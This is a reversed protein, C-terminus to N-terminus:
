SISWYAVLVKLTLLLIEEVDECMMGTKGLTESALSSAASGEGFTDDTKSEVFNNDGLVDFVDLTCTKMYQQYGYCAFLFVPVYIM